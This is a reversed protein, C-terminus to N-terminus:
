TSREELITLILAFPERSAGLLLFFMRSTPMSDFAGTFEACSFYFLQYTGIGIWGAFAAAAGNPFPTYLCRFRKTVAM